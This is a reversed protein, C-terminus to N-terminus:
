RKKLREVLARLAGQTEASYWDAVFAEWTAREERAFADALDRRALARTARMANAPLAVYDRARELAREVVLEPAVLEDVLGIEKAEGAGLLAGGVSLREAQRVGVVRVLTTYIVRPMPLGVQVENLGIRYGGEAMVRHDCHIALVAGGAPAHGTLAAVVPIESLALTRLLVLFDGLFRELAPRELALLVPVDLGGSFMGPRGSLVLARAGAAPAGAVAATLAAVLAPDLANAPPRALVLERVGRDHDRIELM